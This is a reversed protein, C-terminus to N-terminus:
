RPPGARGPAGPGHGAAALGGCPAGVRRGVLGILGIAVAGPFGRVARHALCSTGGLWSVSALLLTWLPPHTASPVYHASIRLWEPDVFWHGHAILNASTDYYHFDGFETVHRGPGFVYILRLALGALAALAVGGRFLRLESSM